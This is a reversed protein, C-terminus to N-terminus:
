RIGGPSGPLQQSTAELAPEQSDTVDQQAPIKGQTVGGILPSIIQLNMPVGTSGAQNRPKILSPLKTGEFTGRVEPTSPQQIRSGQLTHFQSQLEKIWRSQAEQEGPKPSRNM